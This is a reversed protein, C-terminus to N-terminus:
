GIESVTGGGLQALFRTYLNSRYLKLRATQQNGSAWRLHDHQVAPGINYDYAYGSRFLAQLSVLHLELWPQLARYHPDEGAVLAQVTSHFRLQYEFAIVHGDLKLTWLSLWGNKPARQTLSRFFERHRPMSTSVYCGHTQLSM